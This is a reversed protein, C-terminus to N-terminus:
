ILERCYTFANKTSSHGRATQFNVKQQEFLSEVFHLPMKPVLILERCYTIGNKASWYARASIYDEINITISGM